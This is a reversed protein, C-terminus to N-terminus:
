AHAEDIYRDHHRVWAMPFPFADEDRGKPMLDVYYYLNTYKLSDLVSVRLYLGRVPALSM